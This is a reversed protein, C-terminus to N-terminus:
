LHRTDVALAGPNATPEWISPSLYFWDTKLILRVLGDAVVCTENGDDTAKGIILFTPSVWYGRCHIVLYNLFPSM